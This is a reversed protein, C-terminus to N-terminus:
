PGPSIWHLMKRNTSSTFPLGKQCWFLRIRLICSNSSLGHRKPYTYLVWTPSRWPYHWMDNLEHNLEHNLQIIDDDVVEIGRLIWWKQNGSQGETLTVSLDSNMSPRCCPGLSASISRTHLINSTTFSFVLKSITNLSLATNAEIPWCKISFVPYTCHPLTDRVIVWSSCEATTSNSTPKRTYLIACQDPWQFSFSM